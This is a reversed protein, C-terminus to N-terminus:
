ISLSRKPILIFDKLSMLMADMSSGMEGLLGKLFGSKSCKITRFRILRVCLKLGRKERIRLSAEITALLKKNDWPKLIFNTAGEKIGQVALEIDGYGTIFIVTAAPDHDLIVNLWHFGEKGSTADRSFNMDLLIVDYNENQLIAPINQPNKETHVFSIHQRLFMKAALLIDTDDDVILLRANIKNM